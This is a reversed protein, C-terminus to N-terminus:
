LALPVQLDNCLGMISFSKSSNGRRGWGKRLGAGSIRFQKKGINAQLNRFVKM